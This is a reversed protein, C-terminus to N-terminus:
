SLATHARHLPVDLQRRLQLQQTGSSYLVLQLVTYRSRQVGEQLRTDVNPHQRAVVHLGCDIDRHGAVQQRGVHLRLAPEEDHVVLGSCASGGHLLAQALCQLHDLFCVVLACETQSHVPLNPLQDAGAWVLQFHEVLQSTTTSTYHRTPQLRFLLCVDHVLDTCSLLHGTQSDTVAVVVCGHDLSRIHSHAYLAQLTCTRDRHGVVREPLELVQLAQEKHVPMPVVPADADQDVVNKVLGAEYHPHLDQEPEVGTEGPLEQKQIPGELEVVHGEGSEGDEDQSDEVLVQGVCAQRLRRLNVLVHLLRIQIEVVPLVGFPHHKSCQM